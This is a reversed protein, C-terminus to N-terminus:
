RGLGGGGFGGTRNGGGGASGFISPASTTSAGTKATITRSIYVDGEKLGSLIEVSDDNSFGTTVEVQKPPMTLITGSSKDIEVDSVTEGPVLVFSATGQTKVASIPVNLIDQKIDTIIDANVTMGSKIREDDTDFSIKVAYNVVGQTVTGVLDMDSVKGSITLGDIADFTLNVKQGVKIKTIDVENFSLDAIKEKTVLTAIAASGPDGVKASVRAVIADFPARVFHDSYNYQSQLLSLEESRVDLSDAGETLKKLSNEANTINNQASVMASLHINITDLWGNVNTSATTATISTDDNETKVFNIAIQTNKLADSMMKLMDYTHSLLTKIAEPSSGQSSVKYEMLVTQFYKKVKIYSIEAQSINAGVIDNRQTIDNLYGGKGYLLVDMGDILSPYDTFVSSIDGFGDRYSKDLVEKAAQIDEPRAPKTLKDYAVKASELSVGADRPDIEAIIDGSKIQQGATVYIKTIDGSVKGKVDIQNSASVQGTGSVSSVITGKTM